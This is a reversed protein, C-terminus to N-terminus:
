TLQTLSELIENISFTAGCIHEDSAGYYITVQDGDVVHGNTFVVNGFFGTQEYDMTPEMIPSDSRALIKSPDNLDSLFAGLCYRNNRDAGHYIELWGKSTRIPSAGAGIRQEDWKGKRTTLICRHNGWHILDPSQSLWIFNGGIDVGSPRNFAYYSDGLKEEFLACDKNHPLFIMGNREFDNWNQTSIMGIGVGNESVASYTLVYQDGILAVRCDEIGFTELPGKGQLLIPQDPESFHIGDDSSVLRLHSLTTLFAKGAFQTVRPDSIDIDPHDKPLEMIEMKGDPKLVPFSIFGEKQAPREAVRILLWIKNQFRFVGPNLLCEIQVGPHSSPLDGPSLLPNEKFRKAIDAM